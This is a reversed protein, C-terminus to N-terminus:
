PCDTKSELLESVTVFVFGREQLLPIIIDLAQPTPSNCDIYDHMLIINGSKTNKMVNKVISSVSAHAWDRTDVTWLIIKYNDKISIELLNSNIFGEPPRFLSTKYGLIDEIEKECKKVENEVSCENLAGMSPHTYTHNGIEHGRLAVEKGAESYRSVNIGVMFFTAKVNYKDLVDLIRKTQSPHPGDDFTLAIKMESNSKSNYVRKEEESMIPLLLVRAFILGCLVLSIIRKVM